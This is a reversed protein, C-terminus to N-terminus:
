HKTLEYEAFWIISGRHPQLEPLPSLQSCNRSPKRQSRSGRRLCPLVVETDSPCLNQVLLAPIVLEDLSQGCEKFSSATPCRQHNVTIAVKIPGLIISPVLRQTHRWPVTEILNISSPLAVRFIPPLM